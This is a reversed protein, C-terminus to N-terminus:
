ARPVQGDQAIVEAQAAAFPRGRGPKQGARAPLRATAPVTAAALWADPVKPLVRQGPLLNEASGPPLAERAAPGAPSWGHAAGAARTDAAVPSARASSSSRM